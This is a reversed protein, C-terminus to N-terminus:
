SKLIGWLFWDLRELVKQIITCSSDKISLTRTLLKVTCIVKQAMQINKKSKKKKTQNKVVKISINTQVANHM